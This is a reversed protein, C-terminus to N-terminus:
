LIRLTALNADIEQFATLTTQRCSAVTGKYSATASVLVARRREADFLNRSMQPRVTM